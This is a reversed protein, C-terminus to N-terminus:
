PPLQSAMRILVSQQELYRAKLDGLMRDRAPYLEDKKLEGSVYKEALIKFKNL